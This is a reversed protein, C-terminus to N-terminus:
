AFRIPHEAEFRRGRSNVLVVELTGERPASLTFGLFPDESLAPGVEFRSVPAGDFRVELTKLHLDPRSPHRLKVQAHVIAGPALHGHQVLEVIRLEPAHVDEGRTRELPADRGA